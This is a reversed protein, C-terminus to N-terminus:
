LAARHRLDRCPEKHRQIFTLGGEVAQVSGDGVAKRVKKRSSKGSGRQEAQGAQERVLPCIGVRTGKVRAEM